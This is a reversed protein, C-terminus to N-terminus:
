VVSKHPLIDAKTKTDIFCIYTVNKELLRYYPFGSLVLEKAYGRPTRIFGPKVPVNM